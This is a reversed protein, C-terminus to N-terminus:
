LQKWLILKMKKYKLDSFFYNSLVYKLKDQKQETQATMSCQNSLCKEPVGKM